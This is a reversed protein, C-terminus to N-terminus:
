KEPKRALVYGRRSQYEVEPAYPDRELAEEIRLGTLKLHKLVEETTFFRVDLSIEKGWIESVHEVRTGLHFALLAAGGPVLARKMERLARTLEDGLLHIISYLATIGGLSNSRVGLSDMNGRVFEMGPNLRRAVRLMGESLDLGFVNVGRERLYRGVHGPGCGMDCARASEKIREAFKDLLQRDFPKDNLENFVRRAYVEALIDYSAGTDGVM